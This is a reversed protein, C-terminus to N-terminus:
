PIEKVDVVQMPDISTATIEIQIHSPGSEGRSKISYTNGTKAVSVITCTIGSQSIIENGAYKDNEGLKSLAIEGCSEALARSKARAEQEIIVQTQSRVRAANSVAILVIVASLILTAMVAIFGPKKQM